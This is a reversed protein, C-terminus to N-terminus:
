EISPQPKWIVRPLLSKVDQASSEVDPKLAEGAQEVAGAACVCQREWERILAKARHPVKEQEVLAAAAELCVGRENGLNHQRHHHVYVLQQTIGGPRHSKNDDHGAPIIIWRPRFDSYARSRLPVVRRTSLGLRRSSWRVFVFLRWSNSQLLLPRSLSTRLL